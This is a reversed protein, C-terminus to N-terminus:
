VQFFYSSFWCQNFYSNYLGVCAVEIFFIKKMNKLEITLEWCIRQIFLQKASNILPPQYIKISVSPNSNDVIYTVCNKLNLSKNPGKM